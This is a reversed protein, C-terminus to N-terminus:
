RPTGTVIAPITRTTTRSALGAISRRSKSLLVIALDVIVLAGLVLPGLAVVPVWRVLARMLVAEGAVDAARAAAQTRRPLQWLSELPVLLTAVATVPGIPGMVSLTDGDAETAMLYDDPEFVTTIEVTYGAGELAAGAEALTLGSPLDFAGAVSAGSLM